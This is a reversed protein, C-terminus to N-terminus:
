NYPAFFLFVRLVGRRTDKHEDGCCVGVMPGTQSQRCIGKAIGEFIRECNGEVLKPTNAKHKDGRPLRYSCKEKKLM